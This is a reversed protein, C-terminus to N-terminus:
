HAAPPVDFPIALSRPRETRGQSQGDPVEFPRDISNGAPDELAGSVMLQYHGTKWAEHPQFSWRKEQESVRVDGLISQTEGGAGERTSAVGLVRHLMGYDLPKPFTVVVPDRSGAFPARIEWRHPDPQTRDAAVVHFTKRLGERLPRGQADPWKSDVIL